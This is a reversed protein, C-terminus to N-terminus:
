SLLARARALAKDIDECINERGVEDLLGAKKLAEKPQSRVGSLILTSGEKKVQSHLERLAHIGSADIVPANRMRLILIRKSTAVRKMANKFRDIAAFFLPGELAFVEVEQPVDMVKPVLEESETDQSRRLEDTIAEIETSSEMRKLFLFASLVVGVEIAVTLDILVTLLFTSVLVAIDSKPSRFLKIFTGIESMNWAVFVLIASLAAMPILAAYSGFFLMILLLVGAHVLAAVPTRGGCKVNTATRAIAGTAPIGLFLPSLLNGIGQAVLEMNPRHRTGLMGDAVTASLLSEIAGLLAITLAPSFLKQIKEWSLEPVSPSPLTNPVSGFRSGITEISLDFFQAAATAGILVVLSAPVKRTFKPLAFLVILSIGAIAAAQYNISGLAGGYARWKEIFESPVSEMSLGLFDRIQSSFIIVAIGTTFGVTLPYPIFKLAMGMGFLGMAVLILGALLTAIALGPYGHEAVIGYIVVIFAGTPGSVQVRSGGFLAITFGAIVATYLGQEPKVGSAIAFAIALPLAVIGVIVGAIVDARFQSGSYGDRICTVLKPELPHSM